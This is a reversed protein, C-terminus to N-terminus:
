LLAGALSLVLFFGCMDVSTTLIPGSALAPDMGMRRLILPITGGLIVAVFTNVSLALAIVGALRASGSHVYAMAGLLLGLSLGLFAGVLAEKMFVWKAETPRILGLALERISVAMAQNGSNGSLGAVITLFAALIAHEKIIAENKVIVASAIVLLVLCPVLWVLRKGIRSWLPMTRFEEGGVIGSAKLYTEKSRKETAENVASKRVVGVLLGQDDVVPMGLFHHEEFVDVLDDLPTDVNARQPDDIMLKGVKASSKALLIDRMRLVGRLAGSSSTIYSYQVGYDSYVERNARLDELVEAVTFTDPFSLFETLMIGGATDETYRLLRRAVEAEAPDMAKLIAEAEDDDVESLIDALEDGPLEDVIAAAGEPAMEEILDAAQEDPLDVLVDAAEEPSLVTLLKNTAEEDLHGIARATQAPTLTDLFAVVHDADGESVLDELRLWPRREPM